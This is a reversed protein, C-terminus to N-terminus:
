YGFKKKKGLIFAIGLILALSESVVVSFWIGDMGFLMPLIMVASSEFVMTRLFSIIASTVGDNLATFFGSTFIGFGILGFSLAYRRFGKVTLEFLAKDYGVFVTALKGAFLEASLVMILGIIVIIVLSKRLLSTLESTNKAGYNYSIVPAIGVIYGVFVATFIMSVYMMVGYASVGDEGIYKLLQINYLMGVISMAINTMFESVGNTSARLIVSGKWHTKGLRLLSSNKRGFYILPILGGVFQALATALAAGLIKYELPLMTVLLADGIMNVLGSILTVIFGLRPKEAAVFFSQFMIQLMFFPMAILIIRGYAVSKTLLEGEAGLLGAVPKIVLQGLMALVLGMGIAFYVILSFYENAQQKKGEGYTMAVLATGGTGLMFGLTGLIMLVPMILNVAAFSTKGAFNSVFLGDVVSYISTFIMMAISPLAFKLLKGYSFHDSLQITM